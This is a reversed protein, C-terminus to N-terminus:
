LHWEERERKSIWKACLVMAQEGTIHFERVVEPSYVTHEGTARLKDLFAFVQAEFLANTRQHTM